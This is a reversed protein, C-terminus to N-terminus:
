YKKAGLLISNGICPKADLEPQCLGLYDGLSWTMGSKSNTSKTPRRLDRDAEKPIKPRHKPRPAKYGQQTSFVIEVERINIDWTIVAAREPSPQKRNRARDQNQATIIVEESTRSMEVLM